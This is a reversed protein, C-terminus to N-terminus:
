SRATMRVAANQAAFSALNRLRARREALQPLPALGVKDLVMEWRYAWDHRLLAQEAGTRRMRAQKEPDRDLEQMVAGIDPSNYPLYLLSDPWDFLQPFVDNDPREGIMITGSAAADFYRYGIEIQNGRIEPRDILGPNVIFYRSRKVVNAYLNRHEVPDPVHDASTTDHIYFISRDAAMQLLAQHTVASRRGISYVDVVREPPNPYPSFRATDVAPPLYVARPGIRQNLPEVSQSYYLFVVDFQKLMRLYNDYREMERVWVEDIICVAKRCKERWNGLARIQLMDTPDGCIAVFLDYTREIKPRQLGPNLVIPTHYALKKARDYKRTSLKVRPALMEVSDVEAIVDEFEFHACRFPQRTSANRQSFLLIRHNQAQTPM